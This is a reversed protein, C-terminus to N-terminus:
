SKRRGLVKEMDKEVRRYDDALTEEISKRPLYRRRYKPKLRSWSPEYFGLSFVVALGEGIAMFGDLLAQWASPQQPRKM